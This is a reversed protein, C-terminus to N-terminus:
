PCPAACNDIHCASCLQDHNNRDGIRLFVSVGPLPDEHADHCTSCQIGVGSPTGGFRNNTKELLVPSGVPPRCIKFTVTGKTCQQAKQDILSTNIELSVPHDGSLDTGVNSTGAPMEGSGGTGSMAISSLSSGTNVVSGIAVTGDHCSLCLRSSGDPQLRPSLLTPSSYLMYAASSLTHNWLPASIGDMDTIARHPTHCFVCLRKETTAKVVGPGSTSLNHKTTALGAIAVPNCIGFVLLVFFISLVFPRKV